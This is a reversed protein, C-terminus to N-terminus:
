RHIETVKTEVNFRSRVICVMKCFVTHFDTWYTKLRNIVFIGLDIYEKM